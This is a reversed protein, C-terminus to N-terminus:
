RGWAQWATRAILATVVVVFASRVFRTGHPPVGAM